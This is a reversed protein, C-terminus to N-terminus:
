SCSRGHLNFAVVVKVVVVVVLLLLVDGLLRKDNGVEELYPVSGYGTITALLTLAVIHVPVDPFSDEPGGPQGVDSFCSLFLM